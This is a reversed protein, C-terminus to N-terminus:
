VQALFQPPQRVQTLQEFAYALKILTAEQWARGFFSLGIPLGHVYGAPVTIHPYGAVAAPRSSSGDWSSCDGNVLDIQWAPGDTPVVLADLKHQRVVQDIGDKRSKRLNHALAARYAKRTSDGTAQAGLMLEQGFHPLVTAANAENFAIVEAMNHM